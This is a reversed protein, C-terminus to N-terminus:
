SKIIICQIKEKKLKKCQNSANFFSYKDKTVIRFFIQSDNIKVEKIILNMNLSMKSLKTKLENSIKLSKQKERFSAFQIRFNNDKNIPKKSEDIENKRKIIKEGKDESIPRNSKDELIEYASNKNRSFNNDIKKVLIDQPELIPLEADPVVANISLIIIGIFLTYSFLISLFKLKNKLM